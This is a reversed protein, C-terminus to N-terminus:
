LQSSTQVCTDAGEKFSKIKLSLLQINAEFVFTSYPQFQFPQHWLLYTEPNASSPATKSYEYNQYNGSRLM